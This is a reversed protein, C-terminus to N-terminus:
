SDVSEESRWYNGDKREMFGYDVLARRLSAFDPHHGKLTENVTKEPHKKGKEFKEALWRMIVLRHTHKSPLQKLREGDLFRNLISSEEDAAPTPEGGYFLRKKMGHLSTVDLEYEEGPERKRIFGFHELMSLHKVTERHSVELESSLARPGRPELALNGLIKLRTEDLLTKLVDTAEKSVEVEM